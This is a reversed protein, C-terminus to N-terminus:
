PSGAYITHNNQNMKEGCSAFAGWDVWGFSIWHSNEDGASCAEDTRGDNGLKQFCAMLDEAERATIGAGLGELGGAGFDMAAREFVELAEAAPGGVGVGDNMGGEIM